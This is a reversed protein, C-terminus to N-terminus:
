TRRRKPHPEHSCSRAMYHLALNLKRNGGRNLRHRTTMGSSAPLPATGSMVAFAAKSRLRAPDGVEGLIRAAIIPGVGPLETLTQDTAALKATIQRATGAVLRDLRSHEALRVRILEARVCHDGRILARARAVNRGTQLNPVSREYGPRAVVLDAHIQNAIRTRSRVLEDRYGVLLKLDVLLVQRHASSLGEERSVVRAIAIADIPDSKGQSRRHGRERHTLAAPVERVDEGAQLLRSAAGAGYGLAGEIGVVRDVAQGQVWRLLATHGKPDNALELEAIVRGLRDVAAAALSGKHSDIGIAVEM